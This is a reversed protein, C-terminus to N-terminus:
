VNQVGRLIDLKYKAILLADVSHEDYNLMDINSFEPIASLTAKVLDKDGSNGKIGINKKALAAGMLQLEMCRDWNYLENKIAYIFELLAAYADPRRPNYYPAECVVITPNYTLLAQHFQHRHQAVKAFREGYLQVDWDRKTILDNANVTWAQAQIVNLTVMDAIVVAYGATTTGPDIALLSFHNSCLAESM